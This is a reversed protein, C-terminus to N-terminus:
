LFSQFDKVRDSQSSVFLAGSVPVEAPGPQTRAGLLHRIPIAGCFSFFTSVGPDPVLSLLGLPLPDGCVSGGLGASEAFSLLKVSVGPVPLASIGVYM